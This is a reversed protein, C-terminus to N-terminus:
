CDGVQLSPPVPAGTHVSLADGQFEANSKTRGSAPRTSALSAGSSAASGSPPHHTSNTHAGTAPISTPASSRSRSPSTLNARRGALPAAPAASVVSDDLDSLALAASVVDVDAALQQGLNPPLPQRRPGETMLAPAGGAKPKSPTRKSIASSSGAPPPGHEVQWTCLSPLFYHSVRFMRPRTGCSFYRTSCSDWFMRSNMPAFRWTKASIVRRPLQSHSTDTRRNSVDCHM